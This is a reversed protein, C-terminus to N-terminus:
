EKYAFLSLSLSTATLRLCPFLIISYVGVIDGDGGVGSVRVWLSM